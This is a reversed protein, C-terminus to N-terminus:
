FLLMIAFIIFIMCVTVSIKESYGYVNYSREVPLDLEKEFFAM